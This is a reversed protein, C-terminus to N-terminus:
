HIKDTNKDFLRQIEFIFDLLVQEARREDLRAEAEQERRLGSTIEHIAEFGRMDSTKSKMSEIKDKLQEREDSLQKIEKQLEKPAMSNGRTQDYQKHVVSFEKQMERCNQYVSSVTNDVMFEPPVEIPTLFPALYARKELQARKDLFYHILPYVTTRHGTIVNHIFEDASISTPINYKMIKIFDYMRSTMVDQPEDRLEVSHKKKDLHKFIDNLCCLLDFPSYEDFAVLSLDKSFPPRNLLQVIHAVLNSSSM